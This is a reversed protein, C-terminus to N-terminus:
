SPKGFLKTLDFKINNNKGFVQKAPVSICGNLLTYMENHSGELSDLLLLKDAQDEIKKSLNENTSRELRLMSDKMQLQTQLHQVQMMASQYAYLQEPSHNLPPLMEAYPLALYQYLLQEIEQLLQKNPPSVVLSTKNNSNETTVSADIGLNKLFEGFWMLYQSCIHSYGMPFDFVKVLADQLHKNTLETDIDDFIKQVYDFLSGLSNEISLVYESYSLCKELEVYYHGDDGMSIDIHQTKFEEKLAEFYTRLSYANLWALADLEIYLRYFSKSAKDDKILSVITPYILRENQIFDCSFDAPLESPSLPFLHELDDDELELNFWEVENTLGDFPMKYRVFDEIRIEIGENTDVFQFTM